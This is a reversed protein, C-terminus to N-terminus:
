PAAKLIIELEGEDLLEKPLQVLSLYSRSIETESVVQGLIVTLRFTTFRVNGILGYKARKLGKALSLVKIAGSTHSSDLNDEFTIPFRDFGNADISGSRVSSPSGGSLFAVARYDLDASTPNILEVHSRIEDVQGPDNAGPDSSRFAQWHGALYPGIAGGSPPFFNKAL